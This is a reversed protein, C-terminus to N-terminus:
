EWYFNILDVLGFEGPTCKHVYTSTGEFSVLEKSNEIKGISNEDVTLTHFIIHKCNRCKSKAKVEVLKVGLLSGLFDLDDKNILENM